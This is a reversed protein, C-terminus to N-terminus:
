DRHSQYIHVSPPFNEEAFNWVPKAGLDHILYVANEGGAKMMKKLFSEFKTKEPDILEVHYSVELKGWDAPARKHLISFIQGYRIGKKEGPKLKRGHNILLASFNQLNFNRTGDQIDIILLDM